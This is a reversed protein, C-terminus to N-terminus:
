KDKMFGKITALQGRGDLGAERMVAEAQGSGLYHGKRFPHLTWRRGREGTIWRHMTPLTFGTIGLARAGVQAPFAAAQRATSLADFLEASAVYWAEVDIKERQLLPLTEQVFAFAVESGQLVVSCDPKKKAAPRLLYVGDAARAAPGLGLAARDPVTEPPRTVFMAIVAPSRALAATLLIWVEQPDWPTLTVVTAPPFNGQLLQLAQPDAHTPGDEGTKLGAHACALILPRYAAGTRARLSQAGIAHLRSSIHALPALFAGYSSGVGIGHGSASIGSLIGTMADECIGGTALLRSGANTRANFWGEDFGAAALNASTSAMLDASAILLAGGSQKNYHGLARGLEARLTTVTGPALRLAEPVGRGGAKASRAALAHVATLRPAGPRAARGRKDLRRSSEVLREALVRVM